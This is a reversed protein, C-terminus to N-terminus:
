RRGARHLTYEATVVTNDIQYGVQWWWLDRSTTGLSTWTGDAANGPTVATADM